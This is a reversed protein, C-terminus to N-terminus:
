NLMNVYDLTICVTPDFWQLQKRVMLIQMYINWRSNSLKMKSKYLKAKLRHLSCLDKPWSEFFHVQATFITSIECYAVFLINM